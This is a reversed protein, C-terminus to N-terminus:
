PSQVSPVMKCSCPGKVHFFFFFWIGYWYSPMQRYSTAPIHFLFEIAVFPANVTPLKIKFSSCTGLGHLQLIAGLTNIPSYAKCWLKYGHMAWTIISISKLKRDAISVIECYWTLSFAVLITNVCLTLIRNNFAPIVCVKNVLYKYNIETNYVSM